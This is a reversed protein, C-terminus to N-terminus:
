NEIKPALDPCLEAGIELALELLRNAVDGDQFESFSTPGM